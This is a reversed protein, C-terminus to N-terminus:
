KTTPTNLEVLRDIMKETMMRNAFDRRIQATNLEERTKADNGYMQLLSAWRQDLEEPSISIDELKRLEALALGIQVNRVAQARLEQDRWQERTLNKDTLYQDITTGRYGLNQLFDQEQSDTQDAVLIEPM